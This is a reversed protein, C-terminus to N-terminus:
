IHGLVDTLRPLLNVSTNLAIPQPQHSHALMSQMQKITAHRNKGNLNRWQIGRHTCAERLRQSATKPKVIVPITTPINADTNGTKFAMSAIPIAAKWERYVTKVIAVTWYIIIISLQGIAMLISQGISTIRTTIKQVDQRQSFTIAAEVWDAVGMISDITNVFNM